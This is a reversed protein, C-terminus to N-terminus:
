HTFRVETSAGNNISRVWAMDPNGQNDLTISQFDGLERNAECGTGETCIPGSKAVTPDATEPSSFTSGGDTSQLYTEFWQASAPVGDPTGPTSSHYLSIAVKSGQAAIWPYVSAGGSVLTRPTSWTTGWDHSDSYAVSSTNGNINLWTAVLHNGGANAVVPFAANTTNSSEPQVNVNTFTLAGNSSGAFKVGGSSTSYILGVKDGSGLLGGGSQAILNGPACICGTQDVPTAAITSLPYVLGGSSKSVVLGLPIQHVAHYVIGGGSTAVWQRDQIPLGQLPNATWTNGKDSSTSVTSDGLWLDTMYITGTTPDLAIDSDGGGPLNERLSFPTKTWSAGGNESRFVPSPSGPLHSLVGEPGDIYITNDKAVAIGPESMPESTVVTTSFAGAAAAGGGLLAGVALVAVAGFIASSRRLGVRM